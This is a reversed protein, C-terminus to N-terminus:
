HFEIAFICVMCVCICVNIYMCVHLGVVFTVASMHLKLLKENRNLSIDACLICDILTLDISVSGFTVVTYVYM